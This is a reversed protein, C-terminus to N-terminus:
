EVKILHLNGIKMEKIHFNSDLNIIINQNVPIVFTALLNGDTSVIDYRHTWKSPTVYVPIPEGNDDIGGIFCGEDYRARFKYDQPFSFTHEKM